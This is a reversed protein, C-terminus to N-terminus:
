WRETNLTEIHSFHVDRTVLVLDRQEATAAIWVDNDPLPRGKARLGHKIRAYHEATTLECPLVAMSQALAQVKAANAAVRQSGLAGRLLEGITIVSLFSEYGRQLRNLVAAEGNLVAIIINTDLLYRPNRM